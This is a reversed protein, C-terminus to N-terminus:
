CKKSCKCWEALKQLDKQFLRKFTKQLKAL